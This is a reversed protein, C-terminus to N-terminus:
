ELFDAVLKVNREDTSTRPRGPRIDNEISVCDSRFRNFWRSFTSRDVSFEGCVESMAGHIETRNKSRFSESKTYSRQDLITLLVRCM